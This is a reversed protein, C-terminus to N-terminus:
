NDFHVQYEESTMQFFISVSFLHGYSFTCMILFIEILASFFTAAMDPAELSKSATVILM